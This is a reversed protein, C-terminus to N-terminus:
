KKIECDGLRKGSLKTTMSGQASTFKLSGTYTDGSRTIEGEGTMDPSECVTKWTIKAGDKKFDTNRCKRREDAVVPPEKWEKATCVKMTHAPLSMPMGDMAMQSTVEWSDGIEKAPAPATDAALVPISILAVLPILAAFRRAPGPGM